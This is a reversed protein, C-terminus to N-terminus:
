KGFCNYMGLLLTSFDLKKMHVGTNRIRAVGTPTYHFKTTMLNTNEEQDIVNLM